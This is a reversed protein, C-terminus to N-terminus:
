AERSRNRNPRGGLFPKMVVTAQTFRYSFLSKDGTLIGRLINLISTKGTGNEGILITVDPHFALEVRRYGWLDKIDLSQIWHLNM